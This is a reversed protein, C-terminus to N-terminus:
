LEVTCHYRPSYIGHSVHKIQKLSAAKQKLRKLFNLAEGRLEETSLRDLGRQLSQKLAELNKHPKAFSRAELISWISNDM